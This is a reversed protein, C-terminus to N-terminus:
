DPNLVLLVFVVLPLTLLGFAATFAMAMGVAGAALRRAAASALGFAGGASIVMALGGRMWSGRLGAEFLAIQVAGGVFASLAGIAAVRRRRRARAWLDPGFGQLRSEQAMWETYAGGVSVPV